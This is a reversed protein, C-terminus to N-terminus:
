SIHKGFTKQQKNCHKEVLLLTNIETFPQQLYNGIDATEARYTLTFVTAPPFCVRSHDFGGWVPALVASLM